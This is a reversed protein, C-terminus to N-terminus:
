GNEPVEFVFPKGREEPIWGAAIALRVHREVTKESIRPRQRHPTSHHSTIRFSYELLLQRHSDDLRVAISLGKWGDATCWQPERHVRWSLRRDDIQIESEIARKFPM